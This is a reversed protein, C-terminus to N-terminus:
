QEPSGPNDTWDYRLRWQHGAMVHETLAVPQRDADAALLLIEFVPQNPEMDLFQAETSNAGRCIVDETFHVPRRGIDGLRSYTGGPGTDPDTVGSKEALEAPIYTDALQVPEEDAFYRRRRVVLEAGTDINLLGAARESAPVRDVAVTWAPTLGLERLEVDYAGRGQDRIGYRRTATRTIIPIARVYAGRGRRVRVIGESRLMGVARNVTIRSVGFERALEPESPLPSGPSHLGREIRDRLIDAIQAFRPRPDQVSTV